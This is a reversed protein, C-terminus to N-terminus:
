GFVVVPETVLELAVGADDVVGGVRDGGDEGVGEVMSVAVDRSAETPEDVGAEM